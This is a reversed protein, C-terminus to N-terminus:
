EPHHPPIINAVKLRRQVRGLSGTGTWLARVMETDFQVFQEYGLFSPTKWTDAIWLRLTKM